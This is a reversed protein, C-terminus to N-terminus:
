CQEGGNTAECGRSGCLTAEFVKVEVVHMQM